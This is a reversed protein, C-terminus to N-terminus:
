GLQLIIKQGKNIRLGAKISQERVIGSGVPQVFLGYKELMYTADILGMGVVNPVLGKQMKKHIIKIADKGTRTSIWENSKNSLDEVPIRMNESAVLFSMKDGSRSYPYRNLTDKLVINEKQFEQAYVKDAIEKFVTGSVVSGFINKTPGQVVVICSYVPDKSPFYGCFSAQYKNGYGKSGQAIKSTGTKGAISFGRAKINKATGREVVGELMVKLDRLTAKSCISANLIRPKYEKQIESGKKICKVFQPQLLTGENAVANYLALTQLPTMKLEYGISMWPLTIGTFTPDSSEKILPVGEGLISLGLKQHIGIEKLGDIFEQPEKKYNDYIIQSIVNSSKEFADKITNRGYIKGGDTLYNDYFEYRGTMDVSDTIEVKGQELAVLLSALKFTSGPESALGVAHNQAEFYTETKPDFSLNAIAKVFGTKVEMLVACGKQAKQERLQKLLASEAVDQINVDISTYVDSGPVPEISLEDDVPKWENGRIKEMLMQGNQGKLYENFAGEIGVLISKKGDNEVAYGVTRNALMGYPKVRQNSKIIICGGRYKGLNFIPFKRLREIQDNRLGRAIFFYRNSDLRQNELELKWENSTKRDILVSLSDSLDSINDTFDQERITILDVFVKYRPVSLALSTKQENSAYINGRPALVKKSIFIQKNADSKLQEGKFIQLYFIQVVIGLGMFLVLFYVSYLRILSEKNKM